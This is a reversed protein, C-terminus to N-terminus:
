SWIAAIPAAIIGDAFTFSSPGTHLLIAGVVTTGLEQRLWRLHRVDHESPAAKAKIEIAVIKRHGIEILLDIEHRGEATRLHYMRPAPTMLALEARLQATVFTDIVRGLLDGDSLVDDATVGLIASILGADVLYRKPALTLRKLRNSTWAPLQETILLNTLLRNYAVATAKAIRASQYVTQEEVIGATNLALATLYRRLRQPDRGGDIGEADRTVLQDVYSALWRQGDRTSLQLAPEPFGSRLAREVYARINLGTVVPAPPEGALIHEIWSPGSLRGELEREVLGYMPLRVLRGTGPWTPSDLDGRVSGTVIFRGRRPDTDCELKVANLVDPVLQWEDILIPEPRHTIAAHADAETSTRVAASALAIVTAARRQASTTKGTARPGAVLIAPHALLMKELERDALRPVYSRNVEGYYGERVGLLSRLVCKSSVAM